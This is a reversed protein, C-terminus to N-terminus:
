PRLDKIGARFLVIGCACLSVLCAPVITGSTGFKFFVSALMALFLPIGCLAPEAIAESIYRLPSCQISDRVRPLNYCVNALVAAVAGIMTGWAVGIAGYRWGLAISCVLNTIGEMLPSFVVLRQQGTGILISAFPAGTLRVMNAIVLITLIHGGAEAYQSGIWIRIISFAFVILPLGTLFLLLVGLRTTKVLLNGLAESDQRAHLEAAHPMVISFVANQVGALFTILTAAVSYPTVANFQFRGVLILDFGSVLLISFSWVSLSLSYGLVERVTQSTILEKHFHIDPALRRLAGFQLAYSFINAFAMVAAMFVLSRGALAAYILGLASFLKGTAATIAPIEYRHLGVFVGNWASAPLGLAISTGIILMAARMPGLLAPPVKPFIRPSAVAMVLILALGTLAALALGTLATSFIGDRWAPDKKENAFAVYRGVATQLGLELYGIYATVQLILVWVAYSAATMHRVLVPPLLLAVFAAISGRGVNSFANKLFRRKSREALPIVM